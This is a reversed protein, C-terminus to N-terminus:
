CDFPIDTPTAGETADIVNSGRGVFRPERLVIRMEELYGNFHTEGDDTTYRHPKIVVSAQRIGASKLADLEDLSNLIREGRYSVISMPPVGFRDSINVKIYPQPMAGEERPTLYKLYWGDALLQQEMEFPILVCFNRTGSANYRSREGTFNAYIIRADDLEIYNAM